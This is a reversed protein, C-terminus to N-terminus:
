GALPLRADVVRTGAIHDHICRRDRRFIFLPDVISLMGVWQHLGLLSLPLIRLLLIRPLGPKTMATTVIRLGLARKGITQGYRHLLWGHIALVMVLGYAMGGVKLLLSGPDKWSMGLVSVKFWFFPISGVWGVLADLLVAGLRRWRSPAALDLAPEAPAVDMTVPAAYPNDMPQSHKPRIM